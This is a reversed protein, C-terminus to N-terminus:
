FVECGFFDIFFLFLEFCNYSFVVFGFFVLWIWICFFWVRVFGVEMVGCNIGCCIGVLLGVGFCCYYWGVCFGGVFVEVGVFKWDDVLYCVEIVMCWVGFWLWSGGVVGDGNWGVGSVYGLGEFM